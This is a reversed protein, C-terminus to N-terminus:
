SCYCELNSLFSQLSYPFNFIVTQFFSILKFKAMLLLLPNIFSPKPFSNSDFLFPYILKFQHFLKLRNEHSSVILWLSYLNSTFICEIKLLEFMLWNCCTGLFELFLMLNLCLLKFFNFLIMLFELFCQHFSIFSLFQSILM